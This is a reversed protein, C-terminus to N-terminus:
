RFGTKIEVEQQTLHKAEQAALRETIALLHRKIVKPNRHSNQM